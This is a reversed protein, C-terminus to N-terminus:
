KTVEGRLIKDFNKKGYIQISKKILDLAEQRHKSSHKSAKKTNKITSKVPEIEHKELSRLEETLSYFERDLDSEETRLRELDEILTLSEEYASLSKSNTLERAIKLSSKKQTLLNTLLGIEKALDSTEFEIKADIGQMFEERKMKMRQLESAHSQRTAVITEDQDGLEKDSQSRLM